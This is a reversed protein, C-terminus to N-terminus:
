RDYHIEGERYYGAINKFLLRSGAYSGRRRIKAFKIERHTRPHISEDQKCIWESPANFLLINHAEQVATSSGKIDFESEVRAFETKKPHMVMIIHMDIQKALIILEHSVRDMERLWDRETVTDMFFNFNDLMAIKCGLENCHYKLEEMLIKSPIRDDYLSLYLNDNTFLTGHKEHFNKLEEKPIPDGTNMDKQAIVSMVRKTFDSDGTEVSAVFHKVNNRLLHASINALFTTKGRGTGGCLITYERVRFGGLIADFKSWEGLKISPFPKHLEQIANLYVKSVPRSMPPVHKIEKM